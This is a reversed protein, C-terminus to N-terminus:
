DIIDQVEEALDALEDQTTTEETTPTETVEDGTDGVPTEEEQAKVSYTMNLM